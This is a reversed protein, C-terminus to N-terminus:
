NQFRLDVSEDGGAVVRPEWGKNLPKPWEDEPYKVKDGPGASVPRAKGAEFGNQMVNVDGVISRIDRDITYHRQYKFQVSCRSLQTSGFQLPVADIAYPYCNELVYVIPKRQTTSEPGSETKTIYMKAAYDDKYRIRNNRNDPKYPLAEDTNASAQLPTDGIMFGYWANMFKLATMNADLTFTLALETFIRTHVYDMSGLGVYLGNQTGTATNVNPLQAEECFFNWWTSYDTHDAYIKRDKLFKAVMGPLEIYVQFNNSTALGGRKSIEALFSNISM